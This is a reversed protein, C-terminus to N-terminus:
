EWKRLLYVKQGYDFFFTNVVETIAERGTDRLTSIWVSKIQEVDQESFQQFTGQLLYLMRM